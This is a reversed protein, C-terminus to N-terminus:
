SQWVNNCLNCCAKAGATNMQLFAIFGNFIRGLKNQHYVNWAFAAQEQTSIHGRSHCLFRSAAPIYVVTTFRPNNADFIGLLNAKSGEPNALIELQFCNPFTHLLYIKDNLLLQSM